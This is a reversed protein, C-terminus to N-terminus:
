VGPGTLDYHLNVIFLAGELKLSDFRHLAADGLFAETQIRAAIDGAGFHRCVV